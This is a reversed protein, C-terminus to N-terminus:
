FQPALPDSKPAAKSPPSTSPAASAAPAEDDVAAGTSAEAPGRKYPADAKEQEGAPGLDVDSPEPPFPTQSASGGCGALAAILVALSPALAVFRLTRM